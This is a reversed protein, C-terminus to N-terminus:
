SAEHDPPMPRCYQGSKRLIACAHEAAAKSEFPGAILRVFRGKKPLTVPVLAPHLPGLVAPQAASLIKWGLQAHHDDHYSALHIRYATNDEESASAPPQAAAVRPPAVRPTTIPPASATPVDVWGSEQEEHTLPNGTVPNIMAGPRLWLRPLWNEGAAVHYGTGPVSSPAAEAGPHAPTLPLPASPAPQVSVVMAPTVLASGPALTASDPYSAAGAGGLIALATGVFRFSM